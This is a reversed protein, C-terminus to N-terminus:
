KEIKFGPLMGFMVSATESGLNVLQQALMRAPITPKRHITDLDGTQASQICKADLNLAPM